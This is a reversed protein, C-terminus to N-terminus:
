RALFAAMLRHERARSSHLDFINPKSLAKSRVFDNERSRISTVDATSTGRLKEPSGLLTLLQRALENRLHTASDTLIIVSQPTIGSTRPITWKPFLRGHCGRTQLNGCKQLFTNCLFCSLKSCGIYPFISDFCYGFKMLLLVIQVEAHTFLRANQLYEFKNTVHELSWTQHVHAKIIPASPSLGVLQLTSALSLRKSERQRIEQPADVSTRPLIELRAFHPFAELCKLFTLHASKIRGLFAIDQVLRNASRQESLLIRKIFLNVSKRYRMPYSRELVQRHVEGESLKGLGRQSVVAQLEHLQQRALTMYTAHTSESYEGIAEDDTFRETVEQYDKTAEWSMRHAANPISLVKSLGESLSPLFYEIRGANYAVIEHWLGLIALNHQESAVGGSSQDCSQHLHNSLTRFLSEIERFFAQDKADLGNNRTVFLKVNRDYERLCTCAVFSDHAEASQGTSADKRHKRNRNAPNSPENKARSVIEAFRDLFKKKLKSEVPTAIPGPRDTDAESLIDDGDNSLVDDEDDIPAASSLQGGHRMSLLNAMAAFRTVQQEDWSYTEAM